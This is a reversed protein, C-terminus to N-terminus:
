EQVIKNGNGNFRAYYSTLNGNKPVYITCNTIKETFPFSNIEPAIESQFHVNINDLSFNMVKVNKGVYVDKLQSCDMEVFPSFTEM